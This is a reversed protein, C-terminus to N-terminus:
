RDSERRVRRSSRDPSHATQRHGSTTAVQRTAARATAVRVKAVRVKAVRPKSARPKTVLSKPGAPVAAAIIAELVWNMTAKVQADSCGWIDKLVIFPEIGYILSIALILRDYQQKTLQHRLPELARALIERRNGRRFPEEELRGARELAHHELSLQLAARWHPEFKVLLPLTRGFVERVRVAADGDESRFDRVPALVQAVVAGIMKSRSPFYRYATARSVGAKLAVEAVSPIREESILRAAHQMLLQFTRGRRPDRPAENGTTDAVALTKASVDSSVTDFEQNADMTSFSVATEFSLTASFELRPLRLM